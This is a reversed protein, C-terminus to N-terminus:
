NVNAFQDLKSRLITLFTEASKMNFMPNRASLPRVDLLIINIENTLTDKQLHFFSFDIKHQHQNALEVLQMVKECIMHFDEECLSMQRLQEDEEASAYNNVGWIFYRNNESMDTLVLKFVGAEQEYFRVVNPVPLYDRRFASYTAVIRELEEKQSFRTDKEVCHYWQLHNSSNVPSIMIRNKEGDFGGVNMRNRECVYYQLPLRKQKELSIIELNHM